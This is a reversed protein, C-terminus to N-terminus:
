KGGAKPTNIAAQVQNGPIAVSGFQRFAIHNDAMLKLRATREAPSLKPDDAVTNMVELLKTLEGVFSSM